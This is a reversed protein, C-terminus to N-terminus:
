DKEDDEIQQITQELEKPSEDRIQDSSQELQQTSDVKIYNPDDAHKWTEGDADRCPQLGPGDGCEEVIGDDDVTTEEVVDEARVYGATLILAIALVSVPRLSFRM